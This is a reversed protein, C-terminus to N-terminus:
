QNLKRTFEYLGVAAATALNLSDVEDSQRIYVSQGVQAYSAPLGPGEGGFILTFQGAQSPELSQLPLAGDLMFPYLVRGAKYQAEYSAFGDFAAVRLHFIAGMSARIAKPHWYDAAPKVIGLDKVGFALCARMIAGVNGMDSPNVLLVHPADAALETDHKQFVGAMFINDKDRIRELSKKDETFPIGHSECLSRTFVRESEALDPHYLVALAWDAKNKLLEVTPFAGFTYSLGDEKKYKKYVQKLETFILLRDKIM